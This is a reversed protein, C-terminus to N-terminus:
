PSQKNVDLFCSKQSIWVESSCLSDPVTCPLNCEGSFPMPQWRLTDLRVDKARKTVQENLNFLACILKSQLLPEAAMDLSSCLRSLFCRSLNWILSSSPDFSKTLHILSKSSNQLLLITVNQRQLVPSFVNIFTEKAHKSILVAKGKKKWKKM